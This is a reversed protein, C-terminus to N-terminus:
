LPKRGSQQSLAQRGAETTSLVTPFAKSWPRTIEANWKHNWWTRSGEEAKDKETSKWAIPPDPMRDHMPLRQFQSYKPAYDTDPDQCRQRQWSITFNHERRWFSQCPQKSSRKRYCSWKHNATNNQGARTTEKLSKTLQWLKQTVREMNLSTIKM